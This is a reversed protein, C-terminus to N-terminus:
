RDLAQLTALLTKRFRALAAHTADHQSLQQQMWV